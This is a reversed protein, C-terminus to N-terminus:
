YLKTKGTLYKLGRTSQANLYVATECNNLKNLRLLYFIDKNFGYYNTCIEKSSVTLIKSIPGQGSYISYLM